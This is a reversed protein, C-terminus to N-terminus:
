PLQLSSFYEHFYDQQEAGSLIFAFGHDCGEQHIVRACVRLTHRQGPLTLLLTVISGPMLPSSVRAALGTEGLEYCYAERVQGDPGTQVFFRFNAFFRPNRYGFERFSPM